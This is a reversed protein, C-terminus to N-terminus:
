AWRGVRDAYGAKVIRELEPLAQFSQYNSGSVRDSLVELPDARELVDNAPFVPPALIERSVGIPASEHLWEVLQSEPDRSARMHAAVVGAEFVQRLAKGVRQLHPLRHVARWQARLGGICAENELARTDKGTCGNPRPKDEREKVDVPQSRTQEPSVAENEVCQTLLAGPGSFFESFDFPRQSRRRRARGGRGAARAGQEVASPVYRAEEHTDFRDSGGVRHIGWAAHPVNTYDCLEKGNCVKHRLDINPINSCLVTAKRRTGGFACNRFMVERLGEADRRLMDPTQWLLSRAPNEMIFYGGQEVQLHCLSAVVQVMRNADQVSKEQKRTPGALGLPHDVYRLPRVRIGPRPMERARSFTRCEIGFHVVWSDTVQTRLRAQNAEAIIDFTSAGMVDEGRLLDWAPGVHAPLSGRATGATRSDKTSPAGPAARARLARVVRMARALRGRLEDLKRKMQEDSVNPGTDTVGSRAAGKGRADESATARHRRPQM